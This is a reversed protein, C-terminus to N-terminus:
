NTENFAETLEECKEKADEYAGRQGAAYGLEWLDGKTLADIHADTSIEVMTQYYALTTELELKLANM